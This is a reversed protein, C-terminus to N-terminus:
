IHFSGNLISDNVAEAIKFLYRDNGKQAELTIGVPLKKSTTALPLTISPLGAFAAPFTNQSYIEFTPVVKGDVIVNQVCGKVPKAEIPTTPFILADINNDSFITNYFDILQLRENLSAKYFEDNEIGNQCKMLTLMREKVDPSAINEVIGEFSVGAKFDKLFTPLDKSIEHYFLDLGSSMCKDIGSVDVNILEINGDISLKKLIYSIAVAVNNSLHEYFYNKCIGLRIKGPLSEFHGSDVSNRRKRDLRNTLIDDVLIIDNLNGGIVGIADATCSIPVIGKLSYRGSTPRYGYAGCLAAPIRCSGFTDVGIGIRAIGTAVAAAAGGSNGGAILTPDVPNKVPGFFFNNSTVGFGLEHINGKGSHIM